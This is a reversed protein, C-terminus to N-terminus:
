SRSPTSRGIWKPEAPPVPTHLLDIADSPDSAFKLLDCHAEKLFGETTAVRVMALLSNWYGCVNVLVTPKHHIGLQTWTLIECLEDLTGFGGPLALFGGALDAMRAKREHMTEVIDLTTLGDHGVEAYLLSKTIVGRVVGGHALSADAVAGMLGVRGGGYVLEIGREALLRGTAVACTLYEARLGKSSGCFVAVSRLSAYKTSAIETDQTDIM